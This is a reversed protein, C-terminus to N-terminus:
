ITCCGCSGAPLLCDAWPWLLVILAM